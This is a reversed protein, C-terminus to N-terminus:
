LGRWGGRVQSPASRRDHGTIRLAKRVCGCKFEKQVGKRQCPGTSGAGDGWLAGWGQTLPVQPPIFSYAPLKLGAIQKAEIWGVWEWGKGTLALAM